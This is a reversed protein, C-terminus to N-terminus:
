PNGSRKTNDTHHDYYNKFINKIKSGTFGLFKKEHFNTINIMM